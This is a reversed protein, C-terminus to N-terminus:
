RRTDPRKPKMEYPVFTKGRMRAAYASRDERCVLEPEVVAIVDVYDVLPSGAVKRGLIEEVQFIGASNSMEVLIEIPKEEGKSITVREISLASVSHITINGSEFALRGRGKTMDTSDGICVIAAEATIPEPEGHHTYIASLIFSRVVTRLEVDDYVEPLLRDLIPLALTIGIDRHGTRHVQNGFDHCLTAAIVILAADDATGVGTAVIDPQIGSDILLELMLLGSASAIKVHTEGHDNMGLKKVAVYNNMIWQTQVERDNKLLDWFLKAKPREALIREIVEVSNREMERYADPQDTRMGPITLKESNM